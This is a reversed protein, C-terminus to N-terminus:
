DSSEEYDMGQAIRQIDVLSDIMERAKAYAALADDFNDKAELNAINYFMTGTTSITASAGIKSSLKAQRDVLDQMVVKNIADQCRERLKAQLKFIEAYVVGCFASCEEPTPMHGKHVVRNRVEVYTKQPRIYVEFFELAWLATFVGLQRESSSSLEKFMKVYLDAPMNRHTLLVQAAFEMYRELAAAMSTAAEVTFGAMLANAGSELLVEFKHSQLMTANQHGRSCQHIAIRDEYYPVDAFEGIPHGDLALCKMCNLVLKM